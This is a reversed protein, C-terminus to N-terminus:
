LAAASILCLGIQEAPTFTLPSEENHKECLLNLIEATSLHFL